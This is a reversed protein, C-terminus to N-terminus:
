IVDGEEVLVVRAPSGDGGKLKMPLAMIEYKGPKIDKLVLGEIIVIGRDLLAHHTEFSTSGYREVSLYDFGLTKIGVGALYSAAAPTIYAYDTYFEGADAIMDSNRTRILIIDGKVIDFAKLNEYDVADGKVHFVKASGILCDLPLEHIGMGNECFHRPADVHTGTHAGMSISTLNLPDGNPISMVQAIEVLPDGPYVVTDRSIELTIDHYKRM